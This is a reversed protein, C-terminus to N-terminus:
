QGKVAIPDDIGVTFIVPRQEKKTL